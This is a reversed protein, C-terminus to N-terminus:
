EKDSWFTKDGILWFSFFEGPGIIGAASTTQLLLLRSRDGGVSSESVFSANDPHNATLETNMNKNDINSADPNNLDFSDWFYKPTDEANSAAM